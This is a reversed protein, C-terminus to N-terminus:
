GRGVSSGLEERRLRRCGAEALHTSLHLHRHVRTGGHSHAGDDTTGATRDVESVDRLVGRGLLDQAVHATTLNLRDSEQGVLVAGENGEQIGARSGVEVRIGNQFFKADLPLVDLNTPALRGLHRCGDSESNLLGASRSVHVEAVQRFVDAILLDPLIKSLKTGDIRDLNDTLLVDGKNVEERDGIGDLCNRLKRLLDLPLGRPAHVIALVAASVNGLCLLLVRSLVETNRGTIGMHKGTGVTIQNGTRQGLLRNSGSSDGSSSAADIVQSVSRDVKTVDVRLCGNLLDAVNHSAAQQVVNAVNWVLVNAKNGKDIGGRGSREVGQAVELTEHDVVASQLYTPTLVRACQRWSDGQGDTTTSRSVDVNAVQVLGPGLLPQSLIEGLVTLDLQDVGQALLTTGKDVEGINCIGDLGNLGDSALIFVLLELDVEALISAAVGWSLELLLAARRAILNRRGM